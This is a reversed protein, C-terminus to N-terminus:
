ECSRVFKAIDSCIEMKDYKKLKLTEMKSSFEAGSDQWTLTGQKFVRENPSMSVFVLREITRYHKNYIIWYYIKNPDKSEVGLKKLEAIQYLENQFSYLVQLQDM